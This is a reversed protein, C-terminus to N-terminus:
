RGANLATKQVPVQTARHPRQTFPQRRSVRMTVCRRMRLWCSAATGSHLSGMEKLDEATLDRLVTEDIENDRFAAEYKGLGLGRLWVVIDMVARGCDATAWIMM